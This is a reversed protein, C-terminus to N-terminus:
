VVEKCYVFCRWNQIDNDFKMKFENVEADLWKSPILEYQINRICQKGVVVDFVTTTSYECATEIVNKLFSIYYNM